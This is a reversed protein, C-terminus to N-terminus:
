KQMGIVDDQKYGIYYRTIESCKKILEDPSGYCFVPHSLFYVNRKESNTFNPLAFDLHLYIKHTKQSLMRGSKRNEPQIKM